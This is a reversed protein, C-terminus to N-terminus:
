RVVIKVSQGPRVRDGRSLGNLVRFRDEQHASFDMRAALTEVTEGPRVTVIDLRQQRVNRAEQRSILRFSAASQELDRRLRDDLGHSALIFRYVDTGSGRIAAVAFDWDDSRVLATAAPLDGIRTPRVDSVDGGRVADNRLYTDLSVDREVSVADFRIIAGGPSFGVVAQPTNELAYGEPVTFTIGLTPHVFTRDRM